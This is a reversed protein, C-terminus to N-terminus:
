ELGGHDEGLAGFEGGEAEWEALRSPNFRWFRGLKVAVGPPIAGERAMRNISESPRKGGVQWREAVQEPTLLKNATVAAAGSM